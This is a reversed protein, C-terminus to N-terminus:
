ENARPRGKYYFKEGLYPVPRDPNKKAPGLV